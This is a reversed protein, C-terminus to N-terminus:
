IIIFEERYTWLGGFTLCRTLPIMCIRITNLLLHYCVRDHSFHYSFDWLIFTFGMRHVCMHVCVHLCLCYTSCSLGACATLPQQTIPSQPAVAERMMLEESSWALWALGRQIAIFGFFTGMCMNVSAWSMVCVCVCLPLRKMVAIVFCLVCLCSDTSAHRFVLCQTVENHVNQLFIINSPVVELTLPTIEM